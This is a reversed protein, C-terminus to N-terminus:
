RGRREDEMAEWTEVAESFGPDDERLGLFFRWHRSGDCFRQVIESEESSRRFRPLRDERKLRDYAPEDLDYATLLGTLKHRAIWAAAQEVSSFVANGFQSGTGHFVFVAQQEVM